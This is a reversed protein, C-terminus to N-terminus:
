SLWGTKTMMMLHQKVYVSVMCVILSLSGLVDVVLGSECLTQYRGTKLEPGGTPGNCGEVPGWQQVMATRYQDGNSAWQLGRSTGSNAWQLGRSTGMAPGNCGEVLGRYQGM